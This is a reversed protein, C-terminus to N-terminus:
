EDGKVKDLISAFRAAWYQIQDVTFGVGVSTNDRRIFTAFAHGDILDTISELKCDFQRPEPQAKEAASMAQIDARM